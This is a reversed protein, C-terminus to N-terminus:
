WPLVRPERLEPKNDKMETLVAHFVMLLTRVYQERPDTPGSEEGYNLINKPLWLESCQSAIDPTSFAIAGFQHAFKNRIKRILNLDRHIKQAYLGVAFGMDIKARFTALPADGQFLADVPEGTGVLRSRIAEELRAELFASGIIAAGRDTQQELERKWEVFPMGHLRTLPVESM